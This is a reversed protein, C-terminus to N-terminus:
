WCSELGASNASNRASGTNTRSKIKKIEKLRLGDKKIFHFVTDTRATISNPNPAKNPQDLSRFFKSKNYLKNFDLQLTAQEQQGNELVNGLSDALLSAATWRYTAQYSLNITTWDIVPFKSTPLTYSFNASQNYMTNRGGKFLNSWVTDKKAKTDLPGYPEDIRSSNSATLDFNLSRALSWRM